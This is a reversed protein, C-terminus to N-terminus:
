YPSMIIQLGIHTQKNQKEFNEFDSSIKDTSPVDRQCGGIVTNRNQSGVKKEPVLLHKM